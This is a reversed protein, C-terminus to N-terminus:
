LMASGAGRTGVFFISGNGFEPDENRRPLVLTRAENM